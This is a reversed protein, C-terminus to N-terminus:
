GYWVVTPVGLEYHIKKDLSGFGNLAKDHSSGNGVTRHFKRTDPESVVTLVPSAVVAKRTITAEVM